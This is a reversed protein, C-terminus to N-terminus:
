YFIRESKARSYYSNKIQYFKNYIYKDFIYVGLCSLLNLIALSVKSYYYLHFTLYPLYCYGSPFGLAASVRPRIPPSPCIERKKASRNLSTSYEVGLFIKYQQRGGEGEKQDDKPCYYEQRQYAM